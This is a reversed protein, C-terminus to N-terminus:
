RREDSMRHGYRAKYLRMLYTPTNFHARRAIEDISLATSELLGKVHALRETMLAKVITTGTIQRFRMDLPRRSVKLRRAIEPVTRIECAEDKTPSNNTARFDLVVITMAGTITGGLYVIAFM